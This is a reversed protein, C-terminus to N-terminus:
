NIRLSEAVTALNPSGGFLTLIFLRQDRLVYFQTEPLTVTGGSSTVPLSFQLRIAARSGVATHEEHLSTVGLRQLQSTADAVVAPLTRGGSDAVILNVSSGDVPDIAFLRSGSGISARALELAQALKPNDKRLAAATQDFAGPDLPPQNWGAPMDITFGPGIVRTFGAAPPPATVAATPQDNGCGPLLLAFAV